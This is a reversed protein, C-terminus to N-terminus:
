PVRTALQALVDDYRGDIEAFRLFRVRDVLVEEVDPESQLIDFSEAVYDALPMAHTADSMPMLDTEVAPPVLEIVQVPTGALQVRLSETWSHIAAKTASYTPTLPLPVFGLGSSVNLVTAPDQRLLLPLFANLVRIPGLLNTTVVAEAAALHGPDRLDEPLMIGAMNVLVDLEPHDAGVSAAAAAISAPDDVDLELATVGPHEAVIADLRERRRGAVIVTNGAEAFRLALGLGIGSTGGTFLMTNGTTKM